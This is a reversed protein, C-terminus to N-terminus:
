YDLNRFIGYKPEFLLKVTGPPGNKNKYTIIEAIREDETDLNYYVDRYIM